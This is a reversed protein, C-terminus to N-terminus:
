RWDGPARLARRDGAAAAPLARSRVAERAASRAARRHAAISRALRKWGARRPRIRRSRRPSRRCRRSSSSTGTGRRASSEPSGGCKRLSRRSARAARRDDRRAVPVLAAAAHRHADPPGMRSRRRRRPWRRQRRDAAACEQVIARLADEAPGEPAFAVTDRACRRMGAPRVAMCSRTAARRRARRRSRSRGTTSSRSRSTTRRRRPAGPRGRDRNGRDAAPPGATPPRPDHRRRDRADGDLRGSVRAAAHPARRRDHVGARARWAEARARLAQAVADRRPPAPDLARQALRWEHEDHAHLAGGAAALPPGKVTQVLACRRAAPAARRRAEELAFDPTDYYTSVVRATRLRGHKVAAVAPHRALEAARPVAARDLALKLEIEAPM